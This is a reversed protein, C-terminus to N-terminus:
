ANLREYRNLAKDYKNLISNTLALGAQLESSEFKDNTKSDYIELVLKERGSYQTEYITQYVDLPDIGCLTDLLKLSYQNLKIETDIKEFYKQIHNQYKSIDGELYESVAIVFLAAINESQGIQEFWSNSITSAIVAYDNEKIRKAVSALQDFNEKVFQNNKSQSLFIARLDKIFIQESEGAIIDNAQASWQNHYGCNDCFDCRATDTAGGTGFFMMIKSRRCHPKEKNNRSEDEGLYPQLEAYTVLNELMTYQSNKWNNVKLLHESQRIDDNITAMNLKIEFGYAQYYKTRIDVDDREGLLNFFEVVEDIQIENGTKLRLKYVYDAINFTTYDGSPVMTLIGPYIQELLGVHETIIESNTSDIIQQLTATRRVDINLYTQSFDTLYKLTFLTEVILNENLLAEDRGQYNLSHAVAEKIYKMKLYVWPLTGGEDAKMRLYALAAELEQVSPYGGEIFFVQKAYDCKNIRGYPCETYEVKDTDESLEFCEPFKRESKINGLHDSCRAMPADWLLICHSHERDRGARGIQQFYEELSGPFGYHVIYRINPKDIGMGFGKTTALLNIKDAIFDDQTKEKVKEWLKQKERGEEATLGPRYGPTSFWPHCKIGNKNLYESVWRAGERERSQDSIFEQEDKAPKPDAYITFILGADKELDFDDYRLPLIEKLVSVLIQHKMDGSGYEKDIFAAANEPDRYKIKYSNSGSNYALKIVELSLERRDIIKHVLDSDSDMGLQNLVDDQVTSSATATLAIISPFDGNVHPLGMQREKLKAYAPRFDHGWESICHAEDVPFYNINIGKNILNTLEKQFTKQQLREPAVYLIKLHGKRFRDMVHRKQAIDLGSHICDVFDFGFRKKLGYVQDNMLSKLPSVIISVGPKLLAPLQFTISKGGGTALIGLVNQNSLVKELIRFQGDNFKEFGFFRKLFYKINEEKIHEFRVLSRKESLESHNIVETFVSDIVLAYKVSSPKSWEINQVRANQITFVDGFHHKPLEFYKPIQLIVKEKDESQDCIKIFYFDPYRKDYLRGSVIEVDVSVIEDVQDDDIDGLLNESIREFKDVEKKVFISYSWKLKENEDDTDIHEHFLKMTNPIKLSERRFSYCAKCRDTSPGIKGCPSLVHIDKEGTLAEQIQKLDISDKMYATELLIFSATSKMEETIGQAFKLRDAYSPFENIINSAVIVDYQSIKIEELAGNLVDGQIPTNVKVKSSPGSLSENILNFFDINGPSQEISDVEIQPLKDPEMGYLELVHYLIEFLDHIAWATTGVAAGLDLVRIKRESFSIKGLRFLELFMLQIKYLNNPLYYAAYYDAFHDIDYTSFNKARFSKNLKSIFQTDSRWGDKLRKDLISDVAKDITPSMFARDGPAIINRVLDYVYVVQDQPIISGRFFSFAM